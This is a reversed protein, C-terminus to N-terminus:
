TSRAPRGRHVATPRHGARRCGRHTARDSGHRGLRGRLGSLGRPRHVRPQAPHRHGRQPLQPRDRLGARLRGGRPAEPLARPRHSPEARHRPRQGADPLPPGARRRGPAAPHPDRGRHLGRRGPAGAVRRHGQFPRRVGGRSDANALLDIERQRYRTDTATLGHWKDPLPRLSKSLLQLGTVDVSLEGRRSTVVEGEAGIWDGLDLNDLVAAGQESVTGKQMLLQIAGTVDQLTAFTLRGHGRISTLRGAIRVVEGTRVDPELDDYREHLVGPTASREYRYPYPDIGQAALVDRKKRREASLLQAAGGSSAGDDTGDDSPGTSTADTGNTVTM